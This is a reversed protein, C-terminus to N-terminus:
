EDAIVAFRVSLKVGGLAPKNTPIEITAMKAEGPGGMHSVLPTGPPIEITVPVRVVTGPKLESLKGYTVKLSVPDSIKAPGLELDGLDSGRIILNVVTKVGDSQKVHGIRLYNLDHDWDKHGFSVPGTVDGTISVSVEPEEEINTTLQLSQGISGVPLGPKVTVTVDIGSQAQNELQDKTLPTMTIDFYHSTSEEALKYNTVELHDSFYALLRIKAQAQAGVHVNTFVLKQPEVALPRVVKGTIVFRLEDHDPDNTQVRVSQRFHDEHTDVNWRVVIEGTEGPAIPTEPLDVFTCKTCSVSSNTFRLPATGENRVKFVRRNDFTKNPLNGFNFEEEEAVAVPRAEPENPSTATTRSAADDTEAPLDLSLASWGLPTGLRALSAATTVLVGVVVVFTMTLFTKM